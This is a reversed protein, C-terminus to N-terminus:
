TEGNFLSGGSAAADSTPYRAVADVGPIHPFGRFNVINDFKSRCTGLDKRCGTTFTAADGVALPLEPATWLEISDTGATRAHTKIEFTLGDNAGATFRVLGATFWDAAYSSLGSVDFVRTLGATQITGTAQYAAQAVNVTCRADGLVASCTRQYTQGVTQNMRNALSRLEAAFALGQRKVEGLNGRAVTVGMGPDAWNVWYLAIAADDYRGALLDSETISLSSLAGQAELNDVALGLSQQIQTATFGAAAEFTTGGYIIDRDHETFGLVTGDRRTVKWCYAMTTVGGALHAALAPSLTKMDAIRITNPRADSEAM